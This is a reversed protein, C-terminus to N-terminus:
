KYISEIFVTAHGRAWLERYVASVEKDGKYAQFMQPGPRNLLINATRHALSDAPKASWYRENKKKSYQWMGPVKFSGMGLGKKNDRWQPDAKAKNSSELWNDMMVVPLSTSPADQGQLHQARRKLEADLDIEGHSNKRQREPM